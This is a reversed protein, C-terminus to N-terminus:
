SRSKSGAGSGGAAAAYSSSQQKAPPETSSPTFDQKRKTVHADKLTSPNGKSQGTAKKVTPVTPAMPAKNAKHGKAMVKQTQLLQQKWHAWFAAMHQDSAQSNLGNISALLKDWGEVNTDLAQQSSLYQVFIWVNDITIMHPATEWVPIRNRKGGANWLYTGQLLPIKFVSGAGMTIPVKSSPGASRTKGSMQKEKRKSLVKKWDEDMPINSEMQEMPTPPPLGSEEAVEASSDPTDHYWIDTSTFVVSKDMM